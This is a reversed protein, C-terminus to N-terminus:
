AMPAFGVLIVGLVAGMAFLMGPPGRHVHFKRRGTTRRTM